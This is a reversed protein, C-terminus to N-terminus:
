RPPASAIAANRIWWLASAIYACLYNDCNRSRAHRNSGIFERGATSTAALIYLTVRSTMSGAARGKHVDKRSIDRRGAAYRCTYRVIHLDRDRARARAYLTIIRTCGLNDASRCCSSSLAIGDLPHRCARAEWNLEGRERTGSNDRKEQGTGRSQIRARRCRRWYAALRHM